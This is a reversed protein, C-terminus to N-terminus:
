RRRALAGEVFATSASRISAATCAVGAEVFSPVWRHGWQMAVSGYLVDWLELHELVGGIEAEYSLLFREPASGGPHIALDKRLYAVAAHQPQVAVQAWDVVGALDGGAFVVNGPHFDDHSLGAPESGAVTKLEDVASAIAPMLPEGEEDTWPEWRQWLPIGRDLDVPVTTDHIQALARALQGLWRDLDDPFLDFRGDIATMVIAPTGFWEGREDLALPQPTPVASHEVLQLNEFERAATTAGPLSRKLVLRKRGVVLAHTACDLGGGFRVVDSVTGGGGILPAVTRVMRELGDATPVSELHARRERESVDGGM